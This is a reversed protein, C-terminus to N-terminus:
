SKVIVQVSVGVAHYFHIYVSEPFCSCGVEGAHYWIRRNTSFKATGVCSLFQVDPCLAFQLSLEPFCNLSASCM